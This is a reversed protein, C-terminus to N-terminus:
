VLNGRKIVGVKYYNNVPYVVMSHTNATGLFKVEDGKYLYGIKTKFNSGSYVDCNEKIIHTGWMDINSRNKPRLIGTINSPKNEITRMQIKDSKGTGNQDYIVLLNDFVTKAVIFIHGYTGSTRVGIDGCKPVTTQPNVFEFNDKLWKSSNRENWWDKANGYFRIDLGLCNKIYDDIFDVCQVGYCGDFDVTKGLRLDIFKNFKM